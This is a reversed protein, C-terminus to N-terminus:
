MQSKNCKLVGLDEVVTQVAVHADAFADSDDVDLLLRVLAEPDRDLAPSFVPHGDEDGLDELPHRGLLGPLEKDAVGDDPVQQVPCQLTVQHVRTRM